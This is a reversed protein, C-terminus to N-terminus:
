EIAMRMIFKNIFHIFAIGKGKGTEHDRVIKVNLIGSNASTHDGSSSLLSVDKFHNLVETESCSFPLNQVLVTSKFDNGGQM